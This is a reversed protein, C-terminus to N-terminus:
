MCTFLYLIVLGSRMHSIGSTLQLICPARCCTRGMCMSAYECCCRCSQVLVRTWGPQVHTLSTRPSHQLLCLVGLQCDRLGEWCSSCHADHAGYVAHLFAHIDECMPPSQWQQHMGTIACCRDSPVADALASWCAVYPHM